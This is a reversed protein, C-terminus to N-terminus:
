TPSKRKIKVHVCVCVCVCVDIYETTDLYRTKQLKSYRVATDMDSVAVQGFTWAVYSIHGFDNM